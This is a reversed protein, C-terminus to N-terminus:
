GTAVMMMGTIDDWGVVNPAVGELFSRFLSKVENADQTHKRYHSFFGTFKYRVEIL